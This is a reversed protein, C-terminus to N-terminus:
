GGEISPMFVVESLEDLPETLADSYIDGDIAVSANTLAPACGPYLKDLAKILAIVSNAEIEMKSGSPLPKGTVAVADRLLSNITLKAM